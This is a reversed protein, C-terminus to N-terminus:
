YNKNLLINLEILNYNNKQIIYMFTWIGGDDNLLSSNEGYNKM